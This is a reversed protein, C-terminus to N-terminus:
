VPGERKIKRREKKKREKKGDKRELRVHLACLSARLCVHQGLRKSAACVTGRPGLRGTQSRRIVAAGGTGKSRYAVASSPPSFFNITPRKEGSINGVLRLRSGSQGDTSCLGKLHCYSFTM